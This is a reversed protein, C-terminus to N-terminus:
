HNQSLYSNTYRPDASVDAGFWDPKVFADATATDPFEVEVLMLGEHVGHFIDLEATFQQVPIRYRTKVVMNGECKSKLRNYAKDNLQFEEERNHIATSSTRIREKVTLWNTCGMRRVRVTPQTCLYGQEIEQCPYQALSDPLKAVLYKREIEM